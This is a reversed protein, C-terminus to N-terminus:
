PTDPRVLDGEQIFVEVKGEAILKRLANHIATPPAALQSNLTAIDLSNSM